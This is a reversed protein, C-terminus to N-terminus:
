GPAHPRRPGPRGVVSLGAFARRRSSSWAPWWWRWSRRCRRTAARALRRLLPPRGVVAPMVLLGSASLDVAGRRRLNRLIWEMAALDMWAPVVVVQPVPAGAEAPDSLAALLLEEFESM